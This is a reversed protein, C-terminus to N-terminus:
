TGKLGRIDENQSFVLWHEEQVKKRLGFTANRETWKVMRDTYKNFQM